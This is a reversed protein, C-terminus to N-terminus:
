LQATATFDQRALNLALTSERVHRPITSITCSSTFKASSNHIIHCFFSGFIDESVEQIKLSMISECKLPSGRLDGPLASKLYQLYVRSHVFPTNNLVLM